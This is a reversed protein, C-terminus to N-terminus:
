YANASLIEANVWENASNAFKQAVSIELQVTSVLDDDTELTVKFIDGQETQLLFFFMHQLWIFCFNITLKKYSWFDVGAYIFIIYLCIFM